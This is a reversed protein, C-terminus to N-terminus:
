NQVVLHEKSTQSFDSGINKLMPLFKVDKQIYKQVTPELNKSFVNAVDLSLSIFLMLLLECSVARETHM